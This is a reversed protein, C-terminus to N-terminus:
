KAPNKIHIFNDYLLSHMNEPGDSLDFEHVSAFVIEGSEVNLVVNYHLFAKRPRLMMVIGIPATCGYCVYMAGMLYNPSKTLSLHGTWGFFKTGYKESIREVDPRDLMVMGDNKRAQFWRESWDELEVMDNFAELDSNKFESANLIELSVGNLGANEKMWAMMKDNGKESDLYRTANKKRTDWKHFEPKIYVVKDVIDSTRKWSNSRSSWVKFEEQEEGEKNVEIKALEGYKQVFEENEFLQFCGHELNKDVKGQSARAKSEKGSVITPKYGEVEFVKSKSNDKEVEPEEEMAVPLPPPPDKKLKKAFEPYTDFMKELLDYAMQRGEEDNPYKQHYSWAKNLGMILVKEPSENDLVYDLDYIVGYLRSSDPAVKHYKHAIKFCSIGYMSQTIKKELYPNNPFDLSLLFSNYMCLVYEKDKLLLHTIEFRALDRVRYFENEDVLFFPRGPQRKTELVDMVAQRRKGVSPHTGFEHEEDQDVVIPKAHPPLTLGLIPTGPSTILTYDFPQHSYPFDSLVLVDFTGDIAEHSYGSELYIELGALDAELEQEKSFLCKALYKEQAEDKSFLTKDKDITLNQEFQKMSHQGLFHQVEHALIFALQAESELHALLGVNVFVIGKDVTYANVVPSKVAYFRLKERIQPQKALLKDAVRSVYESIPDNFLVKGSTLMDDIVFSRALIFDDKKKLGSRGETKVLEIKDQEYKESSKVLFEEPIQGESKLPQYNNLNQSFLPRFLCAMLALLVLEKRM